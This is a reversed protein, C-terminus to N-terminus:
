AVQQARHAMSTGQLEALLRIVDFNCEDSKAYAEAFKESPFRLTSRAVISYRRGWGETGFYAARPRAGAGFGNCELVAYWGESATPSAYIWAWASHVKM